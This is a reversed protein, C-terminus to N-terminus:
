EEPTETDTRKRMGKRNFEVLNGDSDLRVVYTALIDMGDPISHKEIMEISVQWGNDDKVSKLTSSLELGTLKSIESRANRVVDAMTLSM